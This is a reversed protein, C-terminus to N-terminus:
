GTSLSSSVSKKVEEVIKQIKAKLEDRIMRVDEIPKGAPDDLDLDEDADKSCKVNCGMTYVKYYRKKVNFKKPYYVKTDGLDIGIEKMAEVCEKNVRTSINTGASEAEFEKNENLENFFAQAMQSRGANHGCLFLILKKIRKM